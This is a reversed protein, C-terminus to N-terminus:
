LSGPYGSTNRDGVAVAREGVQLGDRSLQSAMDAYLRRRATTVQREQLPMASRRAVTHIWDDDGTAGSAAAVKSDPPLRIVGDDAHSWLGLAGLRARCVEDYAAAAPDPVRGPLHRYWLVPPVCYCPILSVWKPLRAYAPVRPPVPSPTTQDAGLYAAVLLFFVIHLYRPKRTNKPHHAKLM